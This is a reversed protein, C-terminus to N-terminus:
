CCTSTSKGKWSQFELPIFINVISHGRKRLGKPLPLYGSGLNPAHKARHIQLKNIKSVVWNSGERQFEQIQNYLKFVSEDLQVLM